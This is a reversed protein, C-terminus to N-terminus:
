PLSSTDFGDEALRAELAQKIEAFSHLSNDSCPTTYHSVEGSSWTFTTLDFVFWKQCDIINIYSFQYFPPTNREPDLMTDGDENQIVKHTGMSFILRSTDPNNQLLSEGIMWNPQSLGLYDLITPSIDINEVARTTRGAFKDEPFHIILPIRENVKFQQDHDTYIILITNEFQGNAKLHDIVEAVYNDFALIADAYFDPMWPQTQEADESFVRVQPSFYGGHTGLLHAHIFLPVESQDFLALTQSIVEKDETSPVPQTVIKYPNQMERLYFIHLIRDSIREILKSLFFATNEYGLNHGLSGLIGESKSRNNVRDFGDQLNFSFADGYYPAGFEITQYGERKLMGPLHQYANLGTLIDPPYLVRTQTPLKGTMISIVSGATNGSNTFANEAVLSTQALERLTPTTDRYYGYVSLYDASLGDSGLLLINPRSTAPKAKITADAPDITTYDLRVWALGASVVLLGASVYFLKNVPMGRHNEKVRLGFINLMQIYIYVSLTLFFLGYAGRWIGASTSIGFKFLTYSFNDILLLALASLIATPFVPGLYRTFESFRGILAILDVIIFAAIIALIFLSFGFGSLLVIEVKNSLSLISMFSPMSVFFIWEMFIYLYALLVTITFLQKWLPVRNKVQQWTKVLFARTIRGAHELFLNLVSLIGTPSGTITRRHEPYIAAFVLFWVLWPLLILLYIGGLPRSIFSLPLYLTYKRENTIPSSNDSSSFYLYTTGQSREGLSFTSKGTNVVITDESPSLAHGDEFLLIGRTRFILPNDELKYRYAFGADLIITQNELTRKIYFIAAGPKILMVLSVSVVAIYLLVILNRIISKM